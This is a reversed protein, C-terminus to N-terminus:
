KEVIGAEEKNRLKQVNGELFEIMVEEYTLSETVRM